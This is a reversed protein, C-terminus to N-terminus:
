KIISYSLEWAPREGRIETWFNGTSITEGPPLEGNWSIYFNNWFTSGDRDFGFCHGTEGHPSIHTKANLGPSGMVYGRLLLRRGRKNTITCTAQYYYGCFLIVEKSTNVYTCSRSDKTSLTYQVTLLSDDFLVVQYDGGGGCNVTKNKEKERELAKLFGNKATEKLDTEQQAKEDALDSLQQDLAQSKGTSQQLGSSFGSSFQDGDAQTFVPKPFPPPPLAIAPRNATTPAPIAIKVPKPPPPTAVTAPQPTTNSYAPSSYTKQSSKGGKPPVYKEPRADKALTAKGQSLVQEPWYFLACILIFLLLKKM